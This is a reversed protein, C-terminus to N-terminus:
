IELSPGGCLRLADKHRFAEHGTRSDDNKETVGRADELSRRREHWLLPPPPPPSPSRWLPEKVPFFSFLLVRDGGLRRLGARCHFSEVNGVLLLEQLEQPPELLHEVHAVLVGVAEDPHLVQHVETKLEALSVLHPLLPPPWSPCTFGSM